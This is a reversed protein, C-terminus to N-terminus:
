RFNRGSGSLALVLWSSISESEDKSSASIEGASRWILLLASVTLTLSVVEILLSVGGDEWLMNLWISSSVRIFPSSNLFPSELNGSVWYFVGTKPFSLYSISFLYLSSFYFFLSFSSSSLFIVSIALLACFSLWLHISTIINRYKPIVININSCIPTM